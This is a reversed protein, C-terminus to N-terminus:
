ERTYPLRSRRVASPPIKRIEIGYGEGDGAIAKAEAAGNKDAIACDIANRLAVLGDKSALIRAECHEGWQAYLHLWPLEEFEHATLQKVSM